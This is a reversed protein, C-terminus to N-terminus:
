EFVKIINAKIAQYEKETLVVFLSRKSLNKPQELDYPHRALKYDPNPERAEITLEYEM